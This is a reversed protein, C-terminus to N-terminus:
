NYFEGNKATFSVLFRKATEIGTIDNRSISLNSNLYKKRKKPYEFILM